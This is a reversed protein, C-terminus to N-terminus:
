DQDDDSDSADPDAASTGSSETDGNTAETVWAGFAADIDDEALMGTALVAYSTDDDLDLTAELVAATEGHATIMVEHSESSLTAYDTIDAFAVQGFAIGGDVHIDVDATDPVCHGIRVPSENADRIM